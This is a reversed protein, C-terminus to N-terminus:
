QWDFTVGSEAEHLFEMLREPQTKLFRRLWKQKIELDSAKIHNFRQIMEPYVPNMKNLLMNRWTDTKEYSFLGDVYFQAIDIYAKRFGANSWLKRLMLGAQPTTRCLACQSEGMAHLLPNFDQFLFAADGDYFIPRWKATSDAEDRWFKVNGCPWDRNMIFQELVQYQIFAKLDLVSDIFAFQLPDALDASELFAMMEAFDAHTTDGWSSAIAPEKAGTRDKLWDCEVREQITYVGHYVGNIYVEVFRQHPAELELVVALFCSLHDEIGLGSYTITTPKLVCETLVVDRGFMSVELQEGGYEQRAKLRLGKQQTQRATGGHCRLGMALSQTPGDLPLYMVKVEREYERGRLDCNGAKLSDRLTGSNLIGREYDFLDHEDGVISLVPMEHVNSEFVYTRYTTPCQQMGTKADFSAFGIVVVRKVSDDYHWSRGFASINVCENRSRSLLDSELSKEGLWKPSLLTPDSGDLTFKLVGGEANTKADLATGEPYIGSPLSVQICETQSWVPHTLVSLSYFVLVVFNKRIPFM